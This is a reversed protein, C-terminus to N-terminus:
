LSVSATSRSEGYQQVLKVLLEIDADQALPNVICARLWFEGKLVTGSLFAQGGLQVDTLIARNLENLQQSQDRLAAPAYRFCVISLSQPKFCELEASADVRQALHAALAIDHDILKRYGESGHYKLAMWLKLARFGRTQQIGFESLWPPGQVGQENDDVRLYPPVLSFADRMLQADRVLVAGAEVPVYLWKHPDIAISDARSLAALEPAYRTSLAAPAGYAGDVHLWVDHAKCVDAIQDIPDIAGTNVTGASIIVAVPIAGRAIDSRLQQDLDAPSVRLAEDTGLTRLSSSGLGLLEVAKQNCAHSEAGRYVLLQGPLNQLGQMRVNWGRKQLAAHRAVALATLAAVSGGSVLLGMGQAPFGVLQKLWGIVQREIYVAAHNGGAVSPNLAAALADGFIGVPTPPSNVWGYFRPHGNGFPYAAVDRAFEDLIQDIPQGQAPLPQDLLQEALDGPVPQFVPRDAIGTLHETILDVVRYGARRLEDASWGDRTTASKKRRPGM